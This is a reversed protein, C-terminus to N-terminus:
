HAQPLVQVQSWASVAKGDKQAPNFEVGRVFRLAQITFQPANSPQKQRVDKVTGNEDVLVWLIAATPTGTVGDPIAMTMGSKARPRADFCSGDLNYNEGPEACTAGGSAPAPAEASKTQPAPAKGPASKTPAPRNAAVAGGSKTMTVVVTKREGRAVAASTKYEPYGAATVVVGYSRPELGGISDGTTGPKYVTGDLAVRAGAPLGTFALSGTTAVPVSPTPAPVTVAASDHKASDTAPAAAPQAAHQPPAAAADQQPKLVFWYYSGGGGGLLVFLVM